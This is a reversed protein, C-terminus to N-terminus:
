AKGICVWTFNGANGRNTLFRISTRNNASYGSNWAIFFEDGHTAVDALDDTAIAILVNCNLPLVVDKYTNQNEFWTLGWQIIFGNAFKVYGNNRDLKSAVIAGQGLLNKITVLTSAPSDKWNASGLIAKIQDTIPSHASTDRNHGDLAGRTLYAVDIKKVTVNTSNGIVVDLSFVKSNIPTEKAPIYSAYNGGNSYAILKAASDSEGELNAYVGLERAFFGSNVSSNGVAFEIRFQGDGVFEGNSTFPCELKPAIVSTMTDINQNDLQGDGTVLKIYQLKKGTAQSRAILERGYNTLRTNPYISAM